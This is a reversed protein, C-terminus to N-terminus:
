ESYIRQVRPLLAATLGCGEDGGILLAVEQSSLFNGQRDYGFFTVEDGVNCAAASVDVFCQDMCSALLRCRVGNILVPANIEALQQNLGDGYGVGVTAVLTDRELRTNGNYGLTDGAKRAKINTIYSRWSAVEKIGGLPKVPHDMYLRRGIRVADFDYQPFYESSVSSSTHRMPIRIGADELQAIGDLYTKLQKQTLAEDEPDAFHTFAGCVEFHQQMPKFEDIFASLEDGPELGIRHLGTDLKIQLKVKKNQLAAQAALEQALGLRGCTLTLGAEIAAKAQFMLLNGMVFLEQRIGCSRLALGESVHAVAFCKIQEIDALALAINELGLGYADCKLVPILQTGEPLTKLIHFINKRLIDTDIYIYSNSINNMVADTYDTLNYLKFTTTNGM